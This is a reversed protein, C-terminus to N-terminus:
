ATVSAGQQSASVDTRQRKQSLREVAIFDNLYLIKGRNRLVPVGSAPVVMAVGRSLRRFTLSVPICMTTQILCTGSLAWIRMWGTVFVIM